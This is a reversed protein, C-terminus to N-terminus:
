AQPAPDKKGAFTEYAEYGVQLLKLSAKIRLIIPAAGKLGPVAEGVAVMLQDIEDQDLDEFEPLYYKGGDILPKIQVILPLFNGLDNFDLKGDAKSKQIADYVMGGSICVQKLHEIGLKAVEAKAQVEGM